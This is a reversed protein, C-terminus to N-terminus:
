LPMFLGRGHRAHLEEAIGLAANIAVGADGGALVLVLHGPPEVAPAHDRDVVALRALARDGHRAHVTRVRGAGSDAGHVAEIDRRIGHDKVGLVQADAAAVAEVGARESRRLIRLDAVEARAALHVLAGVARAAGLG